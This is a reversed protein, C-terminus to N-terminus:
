SISLDDGSNSLGFAVVAVLGFPDVGRLYPERQESKFSM